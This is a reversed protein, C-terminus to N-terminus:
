LFGDFIYIARYIYIYVHLQQIRSLVHCAIRRMMETSGGYNRRWANEVLQCCIKYSSALDLCFSFVELYVFHVM